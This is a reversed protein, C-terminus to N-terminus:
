LQSYHEKNKDLRDQVMEDIWTLDEDVILRHQNDPDEQEQSEKKFWSLLKM